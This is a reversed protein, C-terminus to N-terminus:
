FHYENLLSALKQLNENLELTKIDKHSILKRYEYLAKADLSDTKARHGLVELLRPVKRPNLPVVKIKKLPVFNKLSLLILVPPNTFLLSSTKILTKPSFLILNRSFDENPFNFFKKGDYAIINHKSIDIALFYIKQM